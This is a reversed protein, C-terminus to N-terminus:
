FAVLHWSVGGDHTFLLTAETESKGNKVSGIAYADNPDLFFFQEAAGGVFPFPAVVTFSAGGDTTRELVQPTKAGVGQYRYAVGATVPIFLSGLTPFATWMREFNRGADTSRLVSEQMGTPCLAWIIFSTMPYLACPQVGYLASQAQRVFPLHGGASELLQPVSGERNDQYSLWVKYGTAALSVANNVLATAGPIPVSSWSTSGARSRALRYDHCRSAASSPTGWTCRVEVAYFEGQAAAIDFAGADSGFSVRHWSRAGDVTAYVAADTAQGYSQFAYGDRANAFVLKGLGYLKPDNFPPATVKVFRGSLASVGAYGRWLSPCSQNGCPSTGLVYVTSSTGARALFSPAFGAALAVEGAATPSPSSSTGALSTSTGFATLSLAMAVMVAACVKLM